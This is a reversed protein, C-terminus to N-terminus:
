FKCTFASSSNVCNSACNIAAVQVEYQTNSMLNIFIQQNSTVNNVDYVVLIGNSLTVHYYDASGGSSPSNWIVTLNTLGSNVSIHPCGPDELIIYILM